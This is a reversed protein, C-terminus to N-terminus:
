KNCWRNFEPEIDNTNPQDGEWLSALCKVGEPVTTCGQPYQHVTNVPVLLLGDNAIDAHKLRDHLEISLHYLFPIAVARKFYDEANDAPQNDRLIHTGARRLPQIDDQVLAQSMHNAEAFWDTFVKNVNRRLEQICNTLDAIEKYAAVIDQAKKQLNVTLPKLYQLCKRTVVFAVIFEGTSMCRLFGSARSMTDSDWRAAEETIKGLCDYLVQYM